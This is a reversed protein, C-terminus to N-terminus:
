ALALTHAIAAGVKDATLERWRACVHQDARDVADVCKRPAPYNKFMGQVKNRVSQFDAGGQPHKCPLNRVLPLPRAEAVSRAFDLAEDMLSGPSASLKDFLKQGALCALFGSQVAEGSVVRNLAAQVGLKVEPLAVSTGPAAVRCHCGLALEMGGGMCVSHLAAVVPKSANELAGILCHLSPEQLAKDTGFETTDAGGSFARGGGTLAIARVASDALAHELGSAVGQRTSLGLGNVPPNALTIVAVDGGQVQYQASM